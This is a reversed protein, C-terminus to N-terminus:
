LTEKKKWLGKVGKFSGRIGTEQDTASRSSTKGDRQVDHFRKRSKEDRTGGKKGGEWWGPLSNTNSLNFSKWTVNGLRKRLGEGAGGGGRNPEEMSGFDFLMGEISTQSGPESKQAGWGGLKGLIGAGQSFAKSKKKLKLTVSEL